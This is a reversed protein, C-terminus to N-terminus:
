VFNEGKEIQKKLKVLAEELLEKEFPTINGLGRNEKIGEQGLVLPTSLYPSDTVDSKVYSCMVVNEEGQLARIMMSTMIGVSYAASITTGSKGFKAEIIERDAHRIRNVLDITEKESFKVTPTTLSILPVATDDGHGGVIPVNISSPELGKELGIFTKARTSDLTCIGFIRKPDYKGAKKMVGNALPVLSNIPESVIGVLAKPCNAAISEMVGKVVVSNGVFLDDHSKGKKQPRGATLIVLQCNRLSEELDDPGHCVKVKCPTAIHSLDKAVGISHVASDILTLEKILPSMKMLLSLPKGVGGSAGILCVKVQIISTKSFSRKLASCLPFFRNFM